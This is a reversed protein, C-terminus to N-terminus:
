QTKFYRLELTKSAPYVTITAKDAVQYTIDRLVDALPTNQYNVNVLVPINPEDGLVSLKYNSVDAIKKLIPEVPGNWSVSVIQDMGLQKANPPAPMKVDPHTAMDIASLQQLSSNVSQATEALEAQANKDVGNVLVTDTTFYSYNIPQASSSSDDSCSTLIGLGFFGICGVLLCKINNM